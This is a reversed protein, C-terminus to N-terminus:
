LDRRGDSRYGISGHLGGDAEFTVTTANRGVDKWVPHSKEIRNVVDVIERLKKEDEEAMALRHRELGAREEPRVECIPGGARERGQKELITADETGITTRRIM